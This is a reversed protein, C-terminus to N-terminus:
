PPTMCTATQSGVPIVQQQSFPLKHLPPLLLPIEQTLLIAGVIVRCLWQSPRQQRGLCAMAESCAPLLCVGPLAPLVRSFVLCPSGLLCEQWSRRRPSPSGSRVTAHMELPYSNLQAALPRCRGGAPSRLAAAPAAHCTVHAGDLPASDTEADNCWM